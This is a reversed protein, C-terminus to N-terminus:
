NLKRIYVQHNYSGIIKSRFSFINSFSDIALKPNTTICKSGPEKWLYDDFGILGGIRLLEFSLVADAIVDSAMHSGDVYIFDFYESKGSSILNCLANLSKSKDVILDIDKSSKNIEISTNKHFRQEVLSMDSYFISSSDNHERGGEWTDICHIEIANHYTSLTKILFCTAAGEYSGIELIKSPKFKKFLRTWMEKASLEFWHNTFQTHDSNTSNM